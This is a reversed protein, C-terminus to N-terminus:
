RRAVRTRVWKASVVEENGRAICLDGAVTSSGVISVLTQWSADEARPSWPKTMCFRAECGLPM